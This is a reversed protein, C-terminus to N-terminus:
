LADGTRVLVKLADRIEGLVETGASTALVDDGLGASKSRRVIELIRDRIGRADAIGEILGRHASAALFGEEKGSGGGGATEVM